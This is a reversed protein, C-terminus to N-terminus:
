AAVNEWLGTAEATPRAAFARFASPDVGLTATLKGDVQIRAADLPAVADVGPLRRVAAAVGPSLTTPAVVFLDAPLLGRLPAMAASSPSRGFHSVTVPQSGSRLTVPVVSDAVSPGAGGRVGAAALGTRTGALAPAANAAATVTLVALGAGLTVLVRRPGRLQVVAGEEPEDDSDRRARPMGNLERHPRAM